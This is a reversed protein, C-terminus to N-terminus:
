VQFRELKNESAQLFIKSSRTLSVGASVCAVLMWIWKSSRSSGTPTESFEYRHVGVLEESTTWPLVPVVTDWEDNNGANVFRLAENDTVDTHLGMEDLFEDQSRSVTSGAVHPYQCERPYAHHMWQAFLRGHLPVQGGHVGAVENLRQIQLSSLNRPAEVTDSPLNSILEVIRQPTAMPQGIAQEVHTRLGECEDLCCVAFFASPTVCHTRSSMYNPIMVLPRKPNTEDLAGLSRLYATNEIFPWKPDMINSYFKSLPVRGTDQDDMEVLREKLGRCEMTQLKTFQHAVQQVVDVTHKFGKRQFPNQRMTTVSEAIDAGFMKIDEWIFCYQILDSEVRDFEALGHGHPRLGKIFSVMHVRLAEGVAEETINGVSVGQMDFIEEVDAVMEAHILDSLTAAFVALDRLAMGKNDLRRELLTQIYVPVQNKKVSAPAVNWAQGEADLGKVHWGYKQGFYRHLAYRVVSTEVRGETNKPMTAFLPRLESELRQLRADDGGSLEAFLAQEVEAALLETQPNAALFTGAQASVLLTCLLSVSLM